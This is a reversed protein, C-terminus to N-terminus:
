TKQVEIKLALKKEIFDKIQRETSQRDESNDIVVDALNKKVDEPLQVELTRLIQDYSVNDRQIARNICNEIGATVTIVCDFFGEWGKEFLLPIEVVFFSNSLQKDAFKELIEQKVLPHLIGELERRLSDDSFVAERLLATDIEGTPLLFRLGWKKKVTLWGAQGKQLFGHVLSDSSIFVAGTLEALRGAVYTKGSGIIGTVGIKM